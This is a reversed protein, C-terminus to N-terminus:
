QALKSELVGKKGEEESVQKLNAGGVFAGMKIYQRVFYNIGAEMKLILDNYGFESQTSIKHEGADLERYFYTKPGSKGIPQDDIRIEKTLAGGFNSNRFIYLGAKNESPSNFEKRKHDEELSAMPISACGVLFSSVIIVSLMSIKKFM